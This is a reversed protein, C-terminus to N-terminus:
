RILGWSKLTSLAADLGVTIEAVGGANLVAQRFAIQAETARARPGAKLELAHFRGAHLLCLDPVGALTGLRKLNVAEFLNRRGQNPTHWWVLGRVGRQQLHQCVAKHISAEPSRRSM